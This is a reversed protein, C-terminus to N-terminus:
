DIAVPAAGFNRRRRAYDRLATHLHEVDFDPWFTETVWIEAYSIQWLLFNSVRKEGATRILLDPEPLHATYLHNEILSEDIADPSLEGSAVKEGITRVADTIEQRSGYNLALALEMGTNQQTLEANRDLEALVTPPMGDRRGIHRFRMNNDLLQKRESILYQEYLGMLAAVEDDPRRLLNETSLAYLTVAEIRLQACETVIPLVAEAGRAHGVTRSKGKAQAWRGNGDMVIAVHHPLVEAPLGLQSERESM